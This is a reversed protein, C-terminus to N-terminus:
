HAPLNSRGSVSTRVPEVGELLKLVADVFTARRDHMCHHLVGHRSRHTRSDPEVRDSGRRHLVVPIRGTPTTATLSRLRGMHRPRRWGRPHWRVGTGPRVSRRRARLRPRRSLRCPEARRAPNRRWRESPRLVDGPLRRDPAEAVMVVAANPSSKPAVAAFLDSSPTRESPPMHRGKARAAFWGRTVTIVIADPDAAEGLTPAPWRRLPLESPPSSPDVRAEAKDLADMRQQYILRAFRSEAFMSISFWAHPQRRWGDDRFERSELLEM